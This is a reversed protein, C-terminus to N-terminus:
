SFRQSCVFHEKGVRRTNASKDSLKTAQLAALESMCTVLPGRRLRRLAHSPLAGGAADYGRSELTADSRKAGVAARVDRKTRFKQRASPPAGHDFGAGTSTDGDREERTGRARENPHM